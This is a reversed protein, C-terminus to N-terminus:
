VVRLGQKTPEETTVVMACNPCHFSHIIKSSGNQRHLRSQYWLTEINCNPCRPSRPQNSTKDHAEKAPFAVPECGFVIKLNSRVSM